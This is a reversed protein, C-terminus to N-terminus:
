LKRTRGEIPIQGRLARAVAQTRSSVNLERLITAVHTKVTGLAIDLERAIQKNALGEAILALVQCQRPTLVSKNSSPQRTGGEVAPPGAGFTDLIRIVRAPPSVVAGWRRDVTEGEIQASARADMPYPNM